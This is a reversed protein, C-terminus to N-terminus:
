ESRGDTTLRSEVVGSLKLDIQGWVCSRLNQQLQHIFDTIASREDGPDGFNGIWLCRNYSSSMEILMGANCVIRHCPVPPFANPNDEPPEWQIEKNPATELDMVLYFM